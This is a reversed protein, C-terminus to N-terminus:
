RLEIVERAKSALTKGADGFSELQDAMDWIFRTLRVNDDIMVNLMQSTLRFQEADDPISFVPNIDSLNEQNSM